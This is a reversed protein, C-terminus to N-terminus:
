YSDTYIDNDKEHNRRAYEPTAYLMAGINSKMQKKIKKGSRMIGGRAVRNEPNNLTKVTTIVCERICYICTDTKFEGSGIAFVNSHKEIIDEFMLKKVHEIQEKNLEMKTGLVRSAYQEVAHKSISYDIEDKM